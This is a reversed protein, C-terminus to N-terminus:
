IYVCVYIYTHKYESLGKVILLTQCVTLKLRVLASKFKSNEKELVLQKELVLSGM